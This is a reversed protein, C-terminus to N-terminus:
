AVRTGRVQSQTTRRARTSHRPTSFYPTRTSHRSPLRHSPLHLPLTFFRSLLAKALSSIGLRFGTFAVSSTLIPHKRSTRCKRTSPEIRKSAIWALDAYLLRSSLGRCFARCQVISRPFRLLTSPFALRVSNKDMTYRSNVDLGENGRTHLYFCSTSLGVGLFCAFSTGARKKM